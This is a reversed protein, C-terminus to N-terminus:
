VVSKRDGEVAEVKPLCAVDHIDQAVDRAIPSREHEGNVLQTIGGADAVAEHQEGFTADATDPGERLQARLGPFGCGGQLVDEKREGSFATTRPAGIWGNSALSSHSIALPRASQIM